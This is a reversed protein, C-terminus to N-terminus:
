IVVVISVIGVDVRGLPYVQPMGKVVTIVTDGTSAVKVKGCAIIDTFETGKPFTNVMPITITYHEAQGGANSLITMVNKKLLV